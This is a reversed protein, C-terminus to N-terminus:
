KRYAEKRHAIKVVVVLLIKDRIEYIIRYVGQRIRYKEEGSLKECGKPRPEEALRLVRELIAAMDKDPLHRLDKSVSKKFLIKYKEM